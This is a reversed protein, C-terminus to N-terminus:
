GRERSSRPAIRRVGVPGTIRARAREACIDILALFHHRDHLTLERWLKLLEKESRSIAMMDRRRPWLDDLVAAADDRGAVLLVEMPTMKIKRALRLCGEVSLRRHEPNNVAKSLGADDTGCEVAIEGRTRFVGDDLLREIFQGFAPRDASETSM